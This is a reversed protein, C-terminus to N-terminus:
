PRSGTRPPRGRRGPSPVTEGAARRRRVARQACANGCYLRTALVHHLEAGCEVCRRDVRRRQQSFRRMVASVVAADDPQDSM